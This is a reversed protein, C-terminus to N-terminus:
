DHYVGLDIACEKCIHYHIDAQDFLCIYERVTLHCNNCTVDVTKAHFKTIQLNGSLKALILDKKNLM